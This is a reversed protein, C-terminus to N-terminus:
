LSISLKACTPLQQFVDLLRLTKVLILLSPPTELIVFFVRIRIIDLLFPLM